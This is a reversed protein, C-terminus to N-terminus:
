EALTIAYLNMTSAETPVPAFDLIASSSTPELSDQRHGVCKGPDREKVIILHIPVAAGPTNNKYGRLKADASRGEAKGVMDNGSDCLVQQLCYTRGVMESMFDREEVRRRVGGDQPM